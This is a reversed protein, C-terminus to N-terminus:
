GASQDDDVELSEEIKKALREVDEEIIEDVVSNGGFAKQLL